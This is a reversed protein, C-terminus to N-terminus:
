LNPDLISGMIINGESYCSGSPPKGWNQSLPKPNQTSENELDVGPAGFSTLM